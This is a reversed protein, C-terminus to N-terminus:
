NTYSSYQLVVCVQKGLYFFILDPNVLLLGLVEMHWAWKMINDRLIAKNPLKMAVPCSGNVHFICNYRIM